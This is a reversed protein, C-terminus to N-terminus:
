NCVWKQQNYGWKDNAVSLGSAASIKKSVKPQGASNTDAWAPCGTQNGGPALYDIESQTPTKYRGHMIYNNKGPEM